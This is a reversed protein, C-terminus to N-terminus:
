KVVELRIVQLEDRQLIDDPESVSYRQSGIKIIDDKQFKTSPKIAIFYGSQNSLKGNVFTEGASQQWFAGQVTSHTSSTRTVGGMGNNAITITIGKIETHFDFYDSYAM